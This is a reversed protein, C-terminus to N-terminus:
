EENEGVASLIDDYDFGKRYLYGIIKKRKKWKDDDAYKLALKELMSKILEIDNSDKLVENATAPDIGKLLLKHYVARSGYKQLQLEAFTKAYEADNIYGYEILKAMASDICAQDLEKSRLKDITEKKTRPCYSVYKLATELAFKEGDERKIDAVEAESLDRGPELKNSIATEAYCALLFEGNVYINVRNKNKKCQSVDSIIM